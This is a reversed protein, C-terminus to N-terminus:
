INNYLCPLGPAPFCFINDEIVSNLTTLFVNLKGTRYSISSVTLSGTSIKYVDLDFDHSSLYLRNKDFNVRM